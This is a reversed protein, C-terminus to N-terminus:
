RRSYHLTDYLVCGLLAGASEAGFVGLEAVTPAFREMLAPAAFACAVAAAACFFDFYGYRWNSWFKTMFLATGITMLADFM